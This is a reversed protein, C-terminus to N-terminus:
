RRVGEGKGRRREGTKEVGEREKEGTTTAGEKERDWEMENGEEEVEGDGTARRASEKDEEVQWSM